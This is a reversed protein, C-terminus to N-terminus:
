AGVFLFGVRSAAPILERLLGLRKGWVEPGADASVGTINGDPRALSSVLGLAVPDDMDGVIPITSTAAKLYRVMRNLPTFVLDPQQRVVESVLEAYHATQGIRRREDTRRSDFPSRDCDPLGEFATAGVCRAAV